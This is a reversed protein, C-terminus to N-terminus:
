KLVKLYQMYIYIYIYINFNYLKFKLSLAHLQSNLYFPIIFPNFNIGIEFPSWIASLVLQVWDDTWTFLIRFLLVSTLIKHGLYPRKGEFKPGHFEIFHYYWLANNPCSVYTPDWQGLSTLAATGLNATFATASMGIIRCRRVSDNSPQLLQLTVIRM